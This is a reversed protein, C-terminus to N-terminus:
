DREEYWRCPQRNIGWVGNGNRCTGDAHNVAPRYYADQFTLEYDEDESAAVCSSWPVFGDNREDFDAENSLLV